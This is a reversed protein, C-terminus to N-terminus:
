REGSYSDAETETKPKLKKLWVIVQSHIRPFLAKKQVLVFGIDVIEQYFKSWSIMKIKTPSKKIWRRLQRQARHLFNEQYFSLIVESQTVRWFERLVALREEEQHLHHFFRMALILGFTNDKFPLGQLADVVVGGIIEGSVSRKLARKVMAGSLDAPIVEFGLSLTLPIFRGYGCPLDLLLLQPPGAQQLFGQLIKRERQDVLRQDWSRYRKKEYESVEEPQFVHKKTM